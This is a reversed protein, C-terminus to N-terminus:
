RANMNGPQTGIRGIQANERQQDIFELQKMHKELRARFPDEENQMRSQVDTAPIEESGQVFQQVVQRRLQTNVGQEPLDVDMGSYMQQLMEREQRVEDQTAQEEPKVMSEVWTPDIIELGKQLLADWNGRANRDAASFLEIASKIKERQLEPEQSLADFELYFDYDESPNKHFEQPHVTNSGMVRFTIVEDGYQQYLWWIHRYVQQWGRLWKNINAQKKARVENAHEQDTTLGTYNRAVDIIMERMEKSAADHRPPDAWGAEGQRSVPWKAGPGLEPPTRGMIYWFPPLTAMSGRDIENDYYVKAIRQFDGANDPIGRSNFSLRSTKERSFDWFPYRGKLHYPSLGHKAYKAGSEPTYEPCFITEYIGLIGDKNILRQYCWVVKILGEDDDQDLNINFRDRNREYSNWNTSDQGRCKEIVADVWRQNWGDSGAYEQLEQATKYEVRFVYPASQINAASKPYLIDEGKRFVRVCPRNVTTGVRPLEAEGTNRLSTIANAVIADGADPYSAQLLQRLDEEFLPDHISEPDIGQELLTRAIDQATVKEAYRCTRRDWFTGVVYGGKEAWYNAGLETEDPLEDMQSGILWKMFSSTLGAQATDASNVPIATINARFLSETLYAAETNCLDDVLPFRLDSAGKWPFADDGNKRGDRTQGAWKCFRIDANHSMQDRYGSLDSQAEEYTEVLWKV